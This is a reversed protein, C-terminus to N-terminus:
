RPELPHCSSLRDAPVGYANRLLQKQEPSMAVVLQAGNSVMRESAVREELAGRDFPSERDCAEPRSAPGGLGPYRALGLSHPTHVHPIRLAACLYHAALGADWFHSNLFAYELGQDEVVSLVHESWEVASRASSPDSGSDRGWCPVRLIRVGPVVWELAPQNSLPRTWIDVDHGFRALTRALQLVYACQSDPARASVDGAVSLFGRISLMAIGSRGDLKAELRTSM